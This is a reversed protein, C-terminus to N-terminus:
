EPSKEADPAEVQNTASKGSSAKTKEDVQKADANEGTSTSTEERTQDLGPQEEEQEEKMEQQYENIEDEIETLTQQREESNIDDDSKVQEKYKILGYLILERDELYRAIDLAEEANGRGILIWYEFYLPESQLSVTNRVNEKQEETLSENIIYSLALEYQTVKPMEKFDYPQLATVVESYENNLFKEQAHIFSTQKPQLSFLSYLSYALAPILCLTVGYLV